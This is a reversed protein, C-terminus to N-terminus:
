AANQAKRKMEGVRLKGLRIWQVLPIEAPCVFACSGCEICNLIGLEEAAAPKGMEALRAIRTPLLFMPCATVCSGCRICPQARDAAQGPEATCVIGSTAKVAPVNLNFQSMGMMPGGMFVQAAASKLGGCYNIIDRFPTGIRALVNKPENLGDGTVTVVREVLAKGELVADAVAIATGINNVVTGVDMPLGGTPVQRNLVSQILMKEAGQPYKVPLSVVKYDYGGKIVAARMTEIADLKNDEIGIYGNSVGLVQMIIAMGTLIRDSYEIMARHDATLYPECECGNLIFSDIPKEKPPALKVHTPFAAGGLGVIGAERIRQNLVAASATPWDKIPEMLDWDDTEASRQIQIMQVKGGVPHPFVGIDKVTGTVTAHVPSSVYAASSGIVQGTKVAQGPEVTATCPAGIHQQLPIFVNEPLPLPEIIKSCTFYKHDNPHVGKKFTPLRM